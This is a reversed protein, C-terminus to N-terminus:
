MFIIHIPFAPLVPLYILIILFILFLAYLVNVCNVSPLTLLGQLAWEGTVTYKYSVTQPGVCAYLYLCM